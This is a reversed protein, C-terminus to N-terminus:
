HRRKFSQCKGTFGEQRLTEACIAGSPGGGIVVYTRADGNLRKKMRKTRKSTELESRKARVKVQGDAVTVKFCPLSDQGPFDEIDGTKLNFCAGHWQCRVRGESLAGNALPAGYHTCKYGLASFEGNQKVLLIKGADGLEFQKMQNDEMDDTRCVIGEVYDMTSKTITGTAQQNSNGNGPQQSTQQDEVSKYGRSDIPRGDLLMLKRNFRPNGHDGVFM